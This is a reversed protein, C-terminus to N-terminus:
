MIPRSGPEPPAMGPPRFFIRQLSAGFINEQLWRHPVQPDQGTNPDKLIAIEREIIPLLEEALPRDDPNHALCWCILARLKANIHGWYGDFLSNGYSVVGKGIDALNMQGPAPPQHPLSLTALSFM